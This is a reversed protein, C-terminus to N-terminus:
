NEMSLKETDQNQTPCDLFEVATMDFAGAIKYITQIRPNRCSGAMIHELTTPNMHCRKALERLTLNHEECLAAIRDAIIKNYEM